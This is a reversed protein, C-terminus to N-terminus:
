FAVSAKRMPDTAGWTYMVHDATSQEIEELTWPSSRHNAKLGVGKNSKPTFPVPEPKNSLYGHNIGGQPVTTFARTPLTSTLKTQKLLGKFLM